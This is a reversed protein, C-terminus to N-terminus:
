HDTLASEDTSVHSVVCERVGRRHVATVEFRVHDYEVVDGIAPPRGLLTLVLGSVSDVDPHELVVGLAEGVQEIRVTGAVRVRGSADGVISQPEAPEDQIEGTVEDFLDELTIIGATGGHEDFVVAMQSAQRRLTGLVADLPTTEPIFPIPRVNGLTVSAGGEVIELLEKIHVQGVIHDLDGDFVPYRTHPVAAVRARLAEPDSGLAIGGVQVRPVMAERAMTDGFAFLERIMQGADRRLLGGAQSEEVVLALEEPSYLHDGAGERRDVGVLRLLGNGLANLAVIFPFAAMTTASMIPTIWLVTREASQLALSKPIMEGLVIHFYTLLAVATVSAVTHAAIFRSAGLVDFAQALWEALVHEGYMGLGLSAITIGLQATAIFRDQRRPDELTQQVTRAVRQGAAARRESAARPAGVIAFEAAVFLANLVLLVGIILIPILSDV